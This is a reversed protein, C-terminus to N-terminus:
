FFNNARKSLLDYEYEEVEELGDHLCQDHPFREIGSEYAEKAEYIRELLLLSRGKRSYGEAFDPNLEVCKEADKLANFGDKMRLYAASRNSYYIYNSEDIEIAKTYLEIAETFKEQQIAANGQTKYQSLFFFSVM